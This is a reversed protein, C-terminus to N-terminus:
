RVVLTFGAAALRATEEEFDARTLPNDDLFEPPFSLTLQQDEATLAVDPLARWSRNRNLHVALRLLVALRRVMPLEAKQVLDLEPRAFRRRHTAVLAALVRQEDESFGPMTSATVVYAGHKHYGHFAIALGIEHLRAGWRLCDRAQRVQDAPFWTGAVYDFLTTATREVRRAQDDDVRFRESLNRITTERVDQQAYRGLLDYMVGERLAGSAAQLSQLPLTKFVGYLVALGAALVPVRTPKLGPLTLKDTHGIDILATRLRKLGRATIPGESWGNERLVLQIANITGSSGVARDWDARFYPGRLRELELRAAIVAKKFRERTIRGDPFFRKTYSVCGLHLSTLHEHNLGVGLIVETSGGGIDVVLQRKGDEHPLDHVVGRYILRAEEDGSIIEIPHGLVASARETFARANKAVRLADTGVVRVAATPTHQLRQGFRALAELARTQAAEDLIKDPGLGAALQVRDRLRDVMTLAGDVVRAIALHFSNSGLDVAAIVDPKSARQPAAPLM